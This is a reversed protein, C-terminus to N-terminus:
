VSKMRTRVSEMYSGAMTFLGQKLKDLALNLEVEVDSVDTGKAKMADLQQKITDAEKKIKLYQDLEEATLRKTDHLLPRFSVFWPKGSNYAANQMLGTGTVLKTIKSAYDPGYKTKVRNIDGEYKSRLQIETSINARIAGKFDMLVQSILFIGIGWKRFERAARELVIYGGKGGYKPLLRHVEDYIMLMKMERAEPLRMEFLSEVSRRVFKDMGSPPLKETVLVTMEGKKEMIEKWPIKQDPTEIGIINVKFGRADEPKMGFKPYLELMAEDKCARMFGTWQATPDVVVIPVGRKLLEESAVQASVSKGAGTSGAAISHTTLDDLTMYAKIDTEAVKGVLLSRDGAKPLKNVDMPFIYRSKSKKKKRWKDFFQTGFHYGPIALFLLAYTLWNSFISQILKLPPAIYLVDFSDIAFAQKVGDWYTVNIEISYRGVPTDDPIFISRKFTRVNEMGLTEQERLVIKETDLHRMEYTLIIDEIKSTEGMNLLTVELSLNTGPEITKTLAKVKVDLLPQKPRQVKVTIPTVHEIDRGEIRTIIDGTYIGEQTTPLTFVKIKVTATSGGNIEFEPKEIMVLEWVNGIVEVKAKITAGLNNTIDISHIEHEGPSLTVFILDSDVEIPVNPPQTPPIQAGGGGGGAGGGGGGGTDAPPEEEAVECDQPCTAVSEGYAGECEENGCIYEAVAYGGDLSTLYATITKQTTSVNVNTLRTWDDSCGVRETWADCHYIGLLNTSIIDDEFSSYDFTLTANDYELGFTTNEDISMNDNTEFTRAEFLGRSNYGVVGMEKIRGFYIPNYASYLLDAGYINITENWVDARINYSGADITRNYYGSNSSFNFYWGADNYYLSFDVDVSPEPTAEEKDLAFGHFFILVSVLFSANTQNMNGSVDYTVADVVFDGRESTNTFQALYTYTDGSRSVFNVTLNETINHHSVTASVNEIGGADTAYIYIDATTNTSIKSSVDIVIDPLITDQYVIAKYETDSYFLSTNTGNITYNASVYLDYGRGLQLDPATFNHLWYGEEYSEFSYSLSAAYTGNAEQGSSNMLTLNISQNGPLTFSSGLSAADMTANSSSNLSQNDAVQVGNVTLNYYITTANLNFITINFYIMSGNMPESLTYNFGDDASAAHLTQTENRQTHIFTKNTSVPWTTTGDSLTMAWTVKENDDISISGYSLNVAVEVTQNETINLLPEVETPYMIDISYPHVTLRLMTSLTIETGGTENYTVYYATINTPTSVLPASYNIGVTEDIGMYIPILGTTDASFYDGDGPVPSIWSNVVTPNVNGVNSLTVSGLFGSSGQMVEKSLILPSRSWSLNVPIRVFLNTLDALGGDAHVELLGSYTGTPYDDPAYVEVTINSTSGPSIYNIMTPVFLTTFNVCSVGSVCSASVNTINTNGASLVTITNNGYTINVQGMQVTVNDEVIVLLPNPTVVITVTTNHTSSTNDMNTWSTTFNLDYNGALTGNPVYLTVNEEYSQNKYIIDYFISSNTLSWGSPSTLNATVNYARSYGATVNFDIDIYTGNYISVNDAYYTYNEPVANVTTVAVSTGNLYTCRILNDTDNACIKFDYVGTENSTFNLWYYSGNNDMYRIESANSPWTINVWAEQVVDNDTIDASITANEYYLEFIEPMVQANDIDPPPNTINMVFTVTKTPPVANTHDSTEWATIVVNGNYLGPPASAPVVYDVSLQGSILKGVDFPLFGVISGNLRVYQQALGSRYFTLTLKVNGINTFNIIGLTGNSDMPTVITGFSSPASIWSRNTLVTVNLLMEDYEANSANARIKTWYDGPAQGAPVDVSLYVTFNDGDEVYGQYDPNIDLSCLPCEVFMNGGVDFLSIDLLPTNGLSLVTFNGLDTEVGHQISKWISDEQIDLVPNSSVYVNIIKETQNYTNDPDRWSANAHIQILGPPTDEKVVITLNWLCSENAAMDGCSINKDYALTTINLYDVDGGSADWLDIQVGYANPPGFNTFNITANFAHDDMQTIGDAIVSDPTANIFPNINGWVTFDYYPSVNMNSETPPDWAHIRVKYTGGVPPTYQVRYLDTTINTMTAWIWSGNPYTINARVLEVDYNDTVTASINVYNLHAEISTNPIVSVGYIQPPETDEIYIFADATDTSANYLLSTNDTINCRFNIDIKSELYWTRTVYGTSNTYLTGNYTYTSQGEYMFWMEVPYNEVPIGGDDDEVFCTANFPLPYAQSSLHPPSGWYVSAAGSIIVTVNQSASDYYTRTATGTINQTGTNMSQPYIYGPNGTDLLTHSEDYWYVTPAVSNNGNEDYVTANAIFYGGGAKTILTGNPPETINIYLIGRVGVSTSNTASPQNTSPKTANMYIVYNQPYITDSPNFLFYCYGDSDTTCNGIYQRSSNYFHVIANEAYENPPPLDADKVRPRIYTSNPAFSDNRYIWSYNQWINVIKLPRNIVVTTQNLWLSANYYLTTNDTINCTINHNGATDSSTDWIWTTSGNADTHNTSQYAGDKSFMVKYGELDTGVNLDTVHCEVTIEIGASATTGNAPGIYDIGSWGYVYVSTSNTNSDYYQRSTNTRLIEPGLPYNYPVSWTTQYGTAKQSWTENYWTVTTDNVYSGCEDNVTATLNVATNRNIVGGTKPIQPNVYLQGYVTLPETSTTYGVEYCEDVSQGYWRQIGAKSDCTPNYSVQCYGGTTTNCASSILGPLYSLYANYLAGSVQGGSNMVTINVENYGPSNISAGYSVADITSNTGAAISQNDAM